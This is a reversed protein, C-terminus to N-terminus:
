NHSPSASLLLETLRNAEELAAAIRGIDTVLKTVLELEAKKEKDNM